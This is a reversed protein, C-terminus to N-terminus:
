NNGVLAALKKQEYDIWKWGYEDKLNLNFIGRARIENYYFVRKRITYCFSSRWGERENCYESLIDFVRQLKIRPFYYHCIMFIDGISRRKNLGCLEERTDVDITLFRNNYDEFFKRIFIKLNKGATKKKLGKLRMNPHTELIHQEIEEITKHM